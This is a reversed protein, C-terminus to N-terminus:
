FYPKPMVGTLWDMAAQHQECLAGDHHLLSCLSGALLKNHPSAVLWQKKCVCCFGMAISCVVAVCKQIKLRKM